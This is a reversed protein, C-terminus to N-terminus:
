GKAGSRGGSRGPEWAAFDTTLMRHAGQTYEPIPVGFPCAEACPAACGSCVDARLDISDFPMNWEKMM